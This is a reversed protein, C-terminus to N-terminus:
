FDFTNCNIREEKVQAYALMHQATLSVAPLGSVFFYAQDYLLNLQLKRMLEDSVAGPKTEDSVLRYYHLYPNQAKMESLESLLPTDKKHSVKWILHMERQSGREHEFRLVSLCAAFGAEDCIFVYPLNSKQATEPFFTGYPGELVIESGEPLATLRETWADTAQIMFEISNPYRKTRASSASFPHGETIFKHDHLRIFFYDGATYDPIEGTTPTVEIVSLTPSLSEKSVLKYKPTQYLKVQRYAYYMLFGFTFLSLFMIFVANIPITNSALIAVYALLILLVSLRHLWEGINRNYIRGQISKLKPGVDMFLGSLFVLGLLVAIALVLVAIYSVQSFVTLSDAVSRLKWQVGVHIIASLSIILSMLAQIQYMHSLGIRKEFFRPRVGIFAVTLLFAYALLGSSYAIIQMMNLSAVDWLFAALLIVFIVLAISPFLWDRRFNNM